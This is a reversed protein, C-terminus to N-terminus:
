LFRFVYYASLKYTKKWPIHVNISICTFKSKLAFNNFKSFDINLSYSVLWIHINKELFEVYMM